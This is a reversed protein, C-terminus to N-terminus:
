STAIQRRHFFSNDFGTELLVSLVFDVTGATTTNLNLYQHLLHNDANLILRKTRHTGKASIFASWFGRGFGTM